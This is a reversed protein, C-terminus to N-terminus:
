ADGEQGLLLRLEEETLEVTTELESPAPPPAVPASAALPPVRPTEEVAQAGVDRPAPRPPEASPAAQPAPAEDLNTGFADGEPARRAARPTGGPPPALPTDPPRAAEPAPGAAPQAARPALAELFRAVDEPGALVADAGMLDALLGKHEFGPSHYAAVQAGPWERRIVPLLRFEERGFHDVALLILRFPVAAREAEVVVDYPTAVRIVHLGAASLGQDLLDGLLSGPQKLILADVVSQKV